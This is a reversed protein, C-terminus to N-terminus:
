SRKKIADLEPNNSGEDHQTTDIIFLLLYKVRLVIINASGGLSAKACCLARVTPESDRKEDLAERQHWALSRRSEM